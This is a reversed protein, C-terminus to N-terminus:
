FRVIEEDMPRPSRISPIALKVELIDDFCIGVGVIVEEEQRPEELEM